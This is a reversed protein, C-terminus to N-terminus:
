MRGFSLVGSGMTSANKTLKLLTLLLATMRRRPTTWMTSSSVDWPSPPASAAPPPRLAAIIRGLAAPVAQSSAVGAPQPQDSIIGPSSGTAIDNRVVSLVPSVALVLTLSCRELLPASVKLGPSVVLVIVITTLPALLFSDLSVKKRSRNPLLLLESNVLFRPMPVIRFSSQDTAHM